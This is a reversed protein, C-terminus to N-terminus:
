SGQFLLDTGECHGSHILLKRHTHDHQEPFASLYVLCYECFLNTYSPGESTLRTGGRQQGACAPRPLMVTGATCVGRSDELCM